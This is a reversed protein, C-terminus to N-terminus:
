PDRSALYAAISVLDQDTFNTVVRAMLPSWEGARAGHQFDYLQRAIYSPSRGAISPIPGLGRLDPGHCLGCPVTKGADGTTVLAEGRAVSGVPVYATVAARADFAEYHDLDDPVEVIRNGIPEQGGDKAAAYFLGDVYTKPATSTEVVKIRKKPTLASFYAAAQAVDDASVAHAVSQMLTVPLRGPVSSQRAATKFDAMQQVIYAAPLGALSANEPGGGGDARHCHGCAFVEPKRGFAVIDPMPPHDDPYWDIALFFDRLQGVSYSASSGPMHVVHGDDPPLKFGPPTVPYAWAPPSDAGQTAPTLALLPLALAISAVRLIQARQMTARWIAKVKRKMLAEKTM